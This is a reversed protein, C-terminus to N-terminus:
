GHVFEEPTKDAKALNCDACATHCNAYSHEGGRSLPIAHELHMAEFAVPERCLYCQGEDREWVKRTSVTEVTAGRKLAKRKKSRDKYGQPNNRYDIRTRAAACKKCYTHLGDRNTGKAAPSFEKAAKKFGCKICLKMKVRIKTQLSSCVARRDRHFQRACPRCYPYLGDPRSRDCGFESEDKDTVCRQCHKRM